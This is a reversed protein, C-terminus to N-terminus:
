PKAFEQLADGHLRMIRWEDMTEAGITRYRRIALENWDLVAWELRRGNREIVLRALAKLLATGIGLSRYDPRVYLDELYIGPGAAFTSYNPFFLAMAEVAGNVEAVLVECSPRESFLAETLGGPTAQCIHSLKEYEALECILACIVAEDGPRAPRITFDTPM